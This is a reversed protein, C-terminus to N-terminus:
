DKPLDALVQKLIQKVTSVKNKSYSEEFNDRAKDGYKEAYDIKDSDLQILYDFIEDPDGDILNTIAQLNEFFLMESDILKNKILYGIIDVADLFIGKEKIRVKWLGQKIVPTYACFVSKGLEDKIDYHDLRKKILSFEEKSLYSAASAYNDKIANKIRKKERRDVSANLDLLLLLLILLSIKKMLCM